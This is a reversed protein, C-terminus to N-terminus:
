LLFKILDRLLLGYNQNFIVSNISFTEQETLGQTSIKKFIPPFKCCLISSFPFEHLHCIPVPPGDADSLGIISITKPLVKPMALFCASAIETCLM